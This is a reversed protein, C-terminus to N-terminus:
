RTPAWSRPPPRSPTPCSAAPGAGPPTSTSSSPPPRSHSPPLLSSSSHRSPHLPRAASPQNNLSHFPNPQNTTADRAERREQTHQFDRPVWEGELSVEKIMDDFSAFTKRVAALPPCSRARPPAGGGAAAHPELRRAPQPAIRRGPLPPVAGLAASRASTSAPSCCRPMHTFPDTHQARSLARSLLLSSLLFFYFCLLSSFRARRRRQREM